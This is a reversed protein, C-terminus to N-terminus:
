CKKEACPCPCPVFRPLMPEAAFPLDDFPLDFPFLRPFLWPARGHLLPPESSRPLELACDPDLSPLEPPDIGPRVLPFLPPQCLNEGIAGRDAASDFRDSDFRDSDLRDSDILPLSDRPEIPRGDIPPEDEDM